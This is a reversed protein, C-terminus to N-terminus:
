LGQDRIKQQIDEQLNELKVELETQVDEKFNELKMESDNEKEKKILKQREEAKKANKLDEQEIEDFISDEFPIWSPTDEIKTEDLPMIELENTSDPQIDAGLEIVVGNEKIVQKPETPRNESVVNKENEEIIEDYESSIPSDDKKKSDEIRPEAALDVIEIELEAPDRQSLTESDIITENKEGAVPRNQQEISSSNAQIIRPATGVFMAMLDEVGPDAVEMKSEEVQESPSNTNEGRLIIKQNSMSEIRSFVVQTAKNTKEKTLYLPTRSQSSYALMDFIKSQSPNNVTQSSDKQFSIQSERKLASVQSNYVEDSLNAPRKVVVLNKQILEYSKALQYAKQKAYELDQSNSPIKVSTFIEQSFQIPDRGEIKVKWVVDFKFYQKGDIKYSDAIVADPNNDDRPFEGKLKTIQFNDDPIKGTIKIAEFVTKGVLSNEQREPAQNEKIPNDVREVSIFPQSHLSNFPEM